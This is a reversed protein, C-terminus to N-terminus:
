VTRSTTNLVLKTSEPKYMWVHPRILQGYDKDPTMMFVGIEDSSFRWALTGIVDDAEFGPVELIPINYAQLIDKIIPVAFRIASFLPETHVIPPM